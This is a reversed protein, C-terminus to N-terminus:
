IPMWPSLPTEPLEKHLLDLTDLIQRFEPTVTKFGYGSTVYGFARVGTDYAKRAAELVEEAPLLLLYVAYQEAM